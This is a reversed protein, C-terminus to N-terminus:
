AARFLPVAEVPPEGMKARFLLEDTLRLRRCVERGLNMQILAFQEIDREYLRLLHDAGIEIARCDQEARVSASRPCMDMLAMEGFCDGAQLRHLVFDHGHWGKVVSVQGSELVFMSNAEDGEHFFHGGQPVAVERAHALLLALCDERLAGFVPMAQLLEVRTSTMAAESPHIM